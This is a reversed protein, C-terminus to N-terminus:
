CMHAGAVAWSAFSGEACWEGIGTGKWQYSSMFAPSSLTTLSTTSDGTVIPSGTVQQRQITIQALFIAFWSPGDIELREVQMCGSFSM